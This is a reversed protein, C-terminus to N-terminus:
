NNLKVGEIGFLYISLEDIMENIWRRATRETCNLENSIEEYTMENIYFMELAKYKEDACIKHQKNKLMELAADIHAIMILTKSKSRKISLIYLEDKNTNDIIDDILDTELQKVDDIANEIHEKLNNYNKLLLKTNHFVNKKEEQKREKNYENIATKAAKNIIEEIDIQKKM